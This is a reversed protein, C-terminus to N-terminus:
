RSNVRITDYIRRRIDIKSSGFNVIYGLKFQTAKLYNYLQTEYFKHTSEVAKIEVLVKDEVIFDPVYIGVKKGKYEVVLQKEEEFSLDTEKLELALANHYIIEKFGCGLKNYVEYFSGVLKYSLEKYLIKESM